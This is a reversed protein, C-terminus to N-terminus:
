GEVKEGVKKRDRVRLPVLNKRAGGAGSLATGLEGHPAVSEERTVMCSSETIM